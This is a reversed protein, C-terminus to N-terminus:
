HLRGDNEEKKRLIKPLRMGICCKPCIDSEIVYRVKEQDWRRVFAWERISDDNWEAVAGCKICVLPDPMKPINNM